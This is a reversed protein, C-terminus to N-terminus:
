FFEAIRNAAAAVHNGNIMDQASVFVQDGFGLLPSEFVANWLGEQIAQRTEGAGHGFKIGPAGAGDGSETKVHVAHQHRFRSVGVMKRRLEPKRRFARTEHVGAPVVAMGSRSKSERM